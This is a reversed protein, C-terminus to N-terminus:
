YLGSLLNKEGDSLATEPMGPLFMSVAWKDRPHFEDFENAKNRPLPRGTSDDQPAEENRNKFLASAEADGEAVMNAAKEVLVNPSPAAADLETIIKTAAKEM